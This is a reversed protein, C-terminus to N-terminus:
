KCSLSHDTYTSGLKNPLLNFDVNERSIIIPHKLICVNKLANVEREGVILCDQSQQWHQTFQSKPM